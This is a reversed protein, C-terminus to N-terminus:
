TITTILTKNVKNSNITGIYTHHAPFAWGGFRQVELETSGSAYAITVTTKCIVHLTYPTTIGVQLQKQKWICAIYLASITGGDRPFMLLPEMPPQTPQDALLQTYVTIPCLMPTPGPALKITRRQANAQMNKAWKLEIKLAGRHITVDARTTHRKNNFTKASRPTVESKRAVAYYMTLVTFAVARDNPTDQLNAVMTKITAIPAHPTPRRKHTKSCKVTDMALKVRIDDLPTLPQIKFADTHPFSHEGSIIPVTPGHCRRDLM